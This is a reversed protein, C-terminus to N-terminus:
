SKSKKQYCFLAATGATLAEALVFALWVGNMGWLSPLFLALPLILFCGRLLSLLFAKKPQDVSNFYVIAVLNMGVFFFGLFYLKMGSVAIQELIASQDRNFISVMQEAFFFVCLYLVVSLVGSTWAGYTVTKRIKRRDGAGYDRSLLPQMGQALGTFVAVFVLAINAVVSYAAVGVNGALKLLIWNFVIIVLGSSVEGVFSSFGLVAIRRMLSFEPKGCSFRFQNRKKVFHISLICLGIVPAAGTALAAGAMGWGFPFIFFYDLVINSLSGIMMAAMSLNPAGDNRVFCLLVNNLLFMPSFLLIVKLYAATEKAVNEDAGLMAALWSSGCLGLILFLVAFCVAMWVANTFVSDREERGAGMGLISYRTAGGMGIMLGLGNILSYVPIALNLAALGNEGLGNAIFFTDALIYCSLGIMGLINLIVYHFFEKRISM